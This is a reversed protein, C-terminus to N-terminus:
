QYHLLKFLDLCHFLLPKNLVDASYAGGQTDHGENVTKGQLSETM